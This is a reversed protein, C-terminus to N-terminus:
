NWQLPGWYHLAKIYMQWNRGRGSRYLQSTVLCSYGACPQNVERRGRPFRKQWLPPIIECLRPISLSQRCPALSPFSNIYSGAGAYWPSLPSSIKKKALYKKERAWLSSMKQKDIPAKHKNSYCLLKQCFCPRKKKKNKLLSNQHQPVLCSKDKQTYTHTRWGEARTPASHAWTLTYKHRNIVRYFSLSLQCHSYLRRDSLSLALPFTPSNLPLHSSPPAINVLDTTATIWRATM